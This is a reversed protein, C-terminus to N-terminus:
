ESVTVITDTSNQNPGFVPFFGRVKKHEFLSIRERRNYQPIFRSKLVPLKKLPLKMDDLKM